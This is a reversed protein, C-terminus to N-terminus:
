SPVAYSDAGPPGATLRGYGLLPIRSLQDPAASQSALPVRGGAAVATRCGAVWVESLYLSSNAVICPVEPADMSIRSDVLSAAQRLMGRDPLAGRINDEAGPATPTICEPHDPFESAPVGAVVGGLVPRGEVRLGTM